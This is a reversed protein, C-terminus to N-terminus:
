DCGGTAPTGAVRGGIREPLGTVAGVVCAPVSEPVPAAAPEIREIVLATAALAAFTLVFAGVGLVARRHSM